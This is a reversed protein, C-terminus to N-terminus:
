TFDKLRLALGANDFISHVKDKRSKCADHYQQAKEIHEIATELAERRKKDAIRWKMNELESKVDDLGILDYEPTPEEIEVIEPDHDNHMDLDDVYMVDSDTPHDHYSGSCKDSCGMMKIGGYGKMFNKTANPDLNQALKYLDALLKDAEKALSPNTVDFKNATAVLTKAIKRFDKAQAAVTRQQQLLQNGYDILDKIDRSVKTGSANTKYSRCYKLWTKLGDTQLQNVLALMAERHENNRIGKQIIWIRARARADQLRAYSQGESTKEYSSEIFSDVNYLWEGPNPADM